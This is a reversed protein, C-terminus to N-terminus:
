NFGPIHLIDVAVIRIFVYGFIALLLGAISYFIYSKGKSLQAPNGQSTLIVYGGYILYLLAVGGVLSLGISYFKQVFGVPNTPLCGLDTSIDGDPCPM